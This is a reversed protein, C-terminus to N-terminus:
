VRYQLSDFLCWKVVNGQTLSELIAEIASNAEDDLEACADGLIENAATCPILTRQEAFGSIPKAEAAFRLLPSAAIGRHTQMSVNITRLFPSCHASRCLGWRAFSAFGM